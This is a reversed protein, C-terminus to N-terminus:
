EIVEMAAGYKDDLERTRATLLGRLRDFDRRVGSLEVEGDAVRKELDTVRRKQEKLLGEAMVARELAIGYKAEIQEYEHKLGNYANSDYERQQQLRANEARLREIKTQLEAKDSRLTTCQLDYSICDATM